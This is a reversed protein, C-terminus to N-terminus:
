TITLASRSASGQRGASGDERGLPQLARALGPRAPKRACAHERVKSRRAVQAPWGSWCTPSGPSIACADLAEGRLTPAIGAAALLAEPDPASAKLSQRLMKRRQGFAAATVRGLTKVRARRAGPARDARVRGGGLGGVPPPTFAEPKLTFLLRPRTRWQAIVALRGYAKTGPAAVIREAVEKQFMLVMRTTGPRGPSPERALRGAAAHRHQLAPQRRDGAQRRAPPSREGTPRSRMASTSRRAPGSLAAAIAELAPRCREDREVAIVREAGELFLARTLGGPGPGVEVVTRGALPGAARAIRRTLNLDLIFNQGLSKRPRCGWARPDGRGAAAPRRPERGPRHASMGAAAARGDRAAAASSTRGAAARRHLQRSAGQRHRRHAFATGHDPSTRVFPLGLTVNVGRDFALTKLPILAQDHYMAIAADYARRAEAHFLTDASHPGTVAIGEAALEAIAPAIM